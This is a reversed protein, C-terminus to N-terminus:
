GGGAEHGGASPAERNGVGVGRLRRGWARLMPRLWGGHLAHPAAQVMIEVLVQRALAARDITEGLTALGTRHYEWYASERRRLWAGALCRYYDRRAERWGREFESASLFRQGYRSVLALLDLPEPDFTKATGTISADHERLCSLIQHVFGFDAGELIEFVVETDEHYRGEAYFPQRARVIDARYLVTTPSGFLYVQNLFFMRCIDRGPIVRQEPLLGKGQARRGRIQYSSVIGVSRHEEALATMEALCTPFLWDDAQVLKVYRTDPSIRELAHNYNQVQTLFTDNGLLRIRPDRGSFSQAIERSDDTSCNDVLVYEFDGRTQGLVSEICQGLYAASNYFPTVVSVLPAVTM